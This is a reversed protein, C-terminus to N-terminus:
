YKPNECKPWASDPIRKMLKNVEAAIEALKTNMRAEEAQGAKTTPLARVPALIEAWRRYTHAKCECVDRARAFMSRWSKWDLDGPPEFAPQATM